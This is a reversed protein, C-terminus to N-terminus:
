MHLGMLSLSIGTLDRGVVCLNAQQKYINPELWRNGTSIWQCAYFHFSQCNFDASRFEISISLAHIRYGRLVISFENIAVYQFMNFQPSAVPM